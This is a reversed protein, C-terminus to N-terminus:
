NMGPEMGYEVTGTVESGAGRVIGGGAGPEPYHGLFYVYL